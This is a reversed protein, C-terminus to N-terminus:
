QKNEQALRLYLAQLEEAITEQDFVTLAAREAGELPLRAQPLKELEFVWDAVGEKLSLFHVRPTVAVTKPTQNSTLCYLGNAQAEALVISFGEYLSPLVFVDMASYWDQVNSQNGKFFIKDHIELEQALQRMELELPGSGILLLRAQPKRALVEKFLQLLFRHNKQQNFHGVHGLLIAEPALGLEQRLQARKAQSFAFQSLDLGNYVVQFDKEKFLWEGAAQSCALAQTYATQFIPNLIRHSRQHDCTINHSHAIRIPIGALRASVLELSMLASSGHVHIQDFKEQKLWALLKALYVLPNRKRGELVKIQFGAAQFREKLSPKIEFPSLVWIEMNQPQNLAELSRLIFRTIGGENVGSTPIHLLKLSQNTKTTM